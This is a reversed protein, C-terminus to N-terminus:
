WERWKYKLLIEKEKRKWRNKEGEWERGTREIRKIDDDMPQLSPPPPPPLLLLLLVFCM